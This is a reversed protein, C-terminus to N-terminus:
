NTFALSKLSESTNVAYGFDIGTATFSKAASVGGLYIAGLPAGAVTGSVPMAETIYAPIVFAGDSAKAICSFSVTYANADPGTSSYGGILAYGSPDGGTWFVQFGKTRVISTLNAMNSWTLPQGVTMSTTFAGVDPGGPGTISFTGPDLFAAASSSGSGPISIGGTASSFIGAYSPSAERRPRQWPRPDRPVPSRSRLAPTSISRPSLIM